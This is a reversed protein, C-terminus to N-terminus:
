IIGSFEVKYAAKTIKKISILNQSLEPVFVVNKSTNTM